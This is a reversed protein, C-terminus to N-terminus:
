VDASGVRHVISINENKISKTKKHRRGWWIYFGTVPLSACIFSAFFALIKTPLGWIAGTHIDYNLRSVQDATSADRFRKKFVGPGPLRRLTVQDFYLLEMDYTKGPRHNVTVQIPDPRKEPFFVFFASGPNDTQVRVFLSDIADMRFHGHALTDSQPQKFVPYTKGGSTAKYFTNRFWEFGWLSGTIAIVLLILMAYFGLVNHLDYNVRKFGAGWKIKFSKNRNARKLNKPWWLLLGSLLLIIFILVATDVIPRGIPYPMWLGRHGHLVFAFLDFDNKLDRGHLPTGTYPDTYLGLSYDKDFLATYASRGPRYSVYRVKKGPYTRAAIARLASPPLYPTERVATQKYPVTVSEIEDVFVYLCGTLGVILVVLGSTLGLWLHLRHIIKKITM